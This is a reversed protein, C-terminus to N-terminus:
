FIEGNKGIIVFSYINVLWLIGEYYKFEEFLLFKNMIDYKKLM